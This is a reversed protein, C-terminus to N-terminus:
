IPRPFSPFPGCFHVDNQKLLTWLFSEMENFCVESLCLPVRKLLSQIKESTAQAFTLLDYPLSACNFCVFPVYYFTWDGM